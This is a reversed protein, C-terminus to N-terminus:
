CTTNFLPKVGARSLHCLSAYKVGDDGCITSNATTPCPKRLSEFSPREGECRGQSVIQIANYNAFCENQYSHWNIGCVFDTVSSCNTGPIVALSSNICSGFYDFTTAKSVTLKCENAYTIGNKGCVPNLITPCVGTNPSLEDLDDFSNEQSIKCFGEYVITVGMEKAWCNNRYSINDAGCVVATKNGCVQEIRAFENTSNKLQVDGSINFSDTQTQSSSNSSDFNAIQCASFLLLFFFLFSTLIKSQTLFTRNNTLTETCNRDLNCNSNKKNM